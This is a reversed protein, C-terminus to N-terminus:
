GSISGSLVDAYLTGGPVSFDINSLTVKGGTIGALPFPAATLTLGGTNLYDNIGNSAGLSVGSIPTTLTATGSDFTAPSVASFTVGVSSLSSVDSPPFALASSGSGAVYTFSQAFAPAAAGACAAVAVGALFKKSVMTM